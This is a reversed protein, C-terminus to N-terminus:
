KINKLENDLYKQLESEKFYRSNRFLFGKVKGKQVYATLTRPSVALFEQAMVMPYIPENFKETLVDIIKQNIKPNTNRM